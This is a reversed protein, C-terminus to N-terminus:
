DDPLRVRYRVLVKHETSTDSLFDLTDPRDEERTFYLYGDRLDGHIRAAPGNRLVPTSAGLPTGPTDTRVRTLFTGEDRVVNDKVEVVSRLVYMREGAVLFNRVRVPRNREDKLVGFSRVDSGDPRSSMLVVEPTPQNDPLSIGEEPPLGRFVTGGPEPWELWWLRGDVAVVSGGYGTKEEQEPRSGSRTPPDILRVRTEPRGPVMGYRRTRKEGHRGRDTWVLLGRERALFVEPLNRLVTESRGDFDTRVLTEETAMEQYPREKDPFVRVITTAGPRLWYVGAPTLECSVRHLSYGDIPLSTVTVTDSAADKGLRVRVLAPPPANRVIPRRVTERRERGPKPESPRYLTVDGVFRRAGDSGNVDDAENPGVEGPPEQLLLLIEDETVLSKLFQRRGDKEVFVVTSPKGDPPISHLEVSPRVVRTGGQAPVPSFPRNVVLRYYRNDRVTLLGGGIKYAEDKRLDTISLIEAGGSSSPPFRLAVVGVVVAVAALLIVPVVVRLRRNGGASRQKERGNKGM